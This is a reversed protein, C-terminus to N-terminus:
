GREKGKKKVENEITEVFSTFYHHGRKRIWWKGKVKDKKRRILSHLLFASDREGWEGEGRSTGRPGRRAPFLVSVCGEEGKKDERVILDLKEQEKGLGHALSAGGGKKKSHGWRFCIAGRKEKSRPRARCVL